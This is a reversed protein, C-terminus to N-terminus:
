LKSSPLRMVALLHCCIIVQTCHEFDFAYWDAPDQSTVNFKFYIPIPFLEDGSGGFSPPMFHWWVKMRCCYLQNIPQNEAIWASCKLWTLM